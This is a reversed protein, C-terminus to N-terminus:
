IVNTSPYEDNKNSQLGGGSNIPRPNNCIGDNDSDNCNTGYHDDWYNGLSGDDWQNDYEDIEHGGNNIFNNHWFKNQEIIGGGTYDEVLVGTKDNHQITNHIFQNETVRGKYTILYVGLGDPNYSGSGVGYQITNESVLNNNSDEVYVGIKNHDMLNSTVKNNESEQTLVVAIGDISHQPATDSTIPATFRSYYIENDHINNNTSRGVYVGITNYFMFNERIINANGSYIQAGNSNSLMRNNHVETFANGSLQVGVGTVSLSNDHIKNNMSNDSLIGYGYFELNCNKVTIDNIGNWKIGSIGVIYQVKGQQNIQRILGNLTAGDCDLEINEKKIEVGKKLKYIGPCFTTSENIEMGDTPIVCGKSGQKNKLSSALVALPKFDKTVGGDVDRPMDCYDDQPNNNTCTPSYDSYYNQDVLNAYDVFVQVKNDIFDNKEVSIRQPTPSTITTFAYVGYPNNKIENNTIRTPKYAGPYTSEYVIGGVTSDEILNNRVLNGPHTSTIARSNERFHNNIIMSEHAFVAANDYINETIKTLEGNGLFENQEVLARGLARVASNRNKKFLNNKVIGWGNGPHAGIYNNEFLNNELLNNESNYIGLGIYNNNKFINNKATNDGQDVNALWLGTQGTPPTIIKNSDWVDIGNTNDEFNNNLLFSKDLSAAIGSGYNKINCNKIILKEKLDKDTYFKGGWPYNGAMEIWIGKESRKGNDDGDLTADNCDLTIDNKVIELGKKFNYIGKCLVTDKDIKDGDNPTICPLNPDHKPGLNNPDNLGYNGTPVPLIPPKPTPTKLSLSKVEWKCDWPGLTAWLNFPKLNCTYTFFHYDQVNLNKTDILDTRSNNSFWNSGYYKTGILPYKGLIAYNDDLLYTDGWTFVSKIKFELYDGLEPDRNIPLKSSDYINLEVHTSPFLINTLSHKQIFQTTTLGLVISASLLVALVFVAKKFM